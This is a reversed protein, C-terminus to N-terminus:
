TLTRSARRILIRLTGSMADLSIKGGTLTAVKAQIAEVKCFREGVEEHLMGIGQPHSRYYQQCVAYELLRVTPVELFYWTFNLWFYLSLITFFIPREPKAVKLPGNEPHSPPHLLPDSSIHDVSTEMVSGPSLSININNSTGVGGPLFGFKERGILNSGCSRLQLITEM